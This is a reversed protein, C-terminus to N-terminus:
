RSMAAATQIIFMLLSTIGHCDSEILIPFHNLHYFFPQLAGATVTGATKFSRFLVLADALFETLLHGIRVKGAVAM